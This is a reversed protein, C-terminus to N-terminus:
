TPSAPRERLRRVLSSQLVRRVLSADLLRTLHSYLFSTRITTLEQQLNKNATQLCSLEWYLASLLTRDYYQQDNGAAREERVAEEQEWATLNAPNSLREKDPQAAFYAFLTAEPNSALFEADRDLVVQGWLERQQPNVSTAFLQSNHTLLPYALAGGVPVFEAVRFYRHLTEVILESHVAETPDVVVYLDRLPYAMSQRLDEPLEQNLKWAEDWANLLYQNRHPGVYDFSIFWGDEPLLRCISGFVRDLRTVHHAAAHNVVLDFPGPPLPDDNVNTQVYDLPRDGAASRADNILSQSYDIGVAEKFLGGDFMEREVWGNGCNLILARDFVRGTQRAFHSWWNITEDGSIRANIMRNTCDLNNWYEGEYYVESNENVGTPRSM